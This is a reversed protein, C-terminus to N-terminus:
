GVEGLVDGVAEYARQDSIYQDFWRMRPRHVAQSQIALFINNNEPHPLTPSIHIRRYLDPLQVRAPIPILIPLSISIFHPRILTAEYSYEEVLECAGRCMGAMKPLCCV